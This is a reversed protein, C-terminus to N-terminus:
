KLLFNPKSTNAYPSIWVPYGSMEYHCKFPCPDQSPHRQADSFVPVASFPAPRLILPPTSLLVHRVKWVKDLFNAPKSSHLSLGTDDQTLCISIGGVCSDFHVYVCHFYQLTQQRFRGVDVFGKGM